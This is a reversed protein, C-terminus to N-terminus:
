KLKPKPRLFLDNFLLQSSSCHTIYCRQINACSVGVRSILADDFDLDRICVQWSVASGGLALVRDARMGKWRKSKGRHEDLVDIRANLCVNSIRTLAVNEVLGFCNIVKLDLRGAGYSTCISELERVPRCSIVSSIYKSLTLCHEGSRTRWTDGPAETDERRFGM